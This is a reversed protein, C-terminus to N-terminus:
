VDLRASGFAASFARCWIVVTRGGIEVDAPVTEYPHPLALRRGLGVVCTGLVAFRLARLRRAILLCATGSLLFWGATLAMSTRFDDSVV